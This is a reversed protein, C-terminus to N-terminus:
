QPGEKQFGGGSQKCLNTHVQSRHESPSPVKGFLPGIVIMHSKSPGTSWLTQTQWWGRSIIIIVVVAVAVAVEGSIRYNGCIPPCCYLGLTHYVKNFLDGVLPGRIQPFRWKVIRKQKNGNTGLSLQSQTQELM